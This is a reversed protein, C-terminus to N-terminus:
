TDSIQNERAVSKALSKLVALQSIITRQVEVPEQSLLHAVYPDLRNNPLSISEHSNAEKPSKSPMYGALTFLDSKEFCLPEYLKLLTRASPFREGKEMRALHSSSVGSVDALQRLTLLTKLRREKLIEGLNKSNNIM